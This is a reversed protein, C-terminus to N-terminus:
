IWKSTIQHDFQPTNRPEKNSEANKRKLFEKMGRFIRRWIKVPFKFKERWVVNVKGYQTILGYIQLYETSGNCTLIIKITGNIRSKILVQLTRLSASM